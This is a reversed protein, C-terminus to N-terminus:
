AGFHADHNVALELAEPGTLVDSVLISGAKLHLDLDLGQRM